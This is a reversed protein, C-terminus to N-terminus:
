RIFEVIQEVVEDIHLDRFFHDAGEIKILSVKKGDVLPETEEIVNTVISDETGAFVLVPVNIKPLHFSTNLRPENGHYSIFSAAQAKTNRCYVFDVNELWAEPKGEAILKEAKTIIPMIEKKFARQYYQDAREKDWTMPAILIVKPVVVPDPHEAAYWAIQSGGRSHGLLYIKKAGENKLWAMWAGIEDLADEHKHTHPIPCDYLGKRDSIGLSLTMSLSNYGQEKLMSQLSKLVELQGHALTGHMMLFVGDSLSKGEAIELNANLTLQNYSIQVDMAFSIRPLLFCIIIIHFYQKM